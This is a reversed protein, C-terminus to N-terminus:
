VSVNVCMRVYMELEGFWNIEAGIQPFNNGGPLGAHRPCSERGDWSGGKPASPEWQCGGM